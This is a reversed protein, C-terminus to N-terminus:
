RRGGRTARRKAQYARGFAADRRRMYESLVSADEISAIFAEREEDSWKLSAFHEADTISEIQEYTV